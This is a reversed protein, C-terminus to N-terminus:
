GPTGAFPFFWMVTWHGTLDSPKVTAGTHDLVGSFSPLGKAQPPPQGVLNLDVSTDKTFSAVDQPVTPGASDVTTGPRSTNSDLAAKSTDSSRGAASGDVAAGTSDAVAAISDAVATIIDSALGGITGGKSGGGCSVLL